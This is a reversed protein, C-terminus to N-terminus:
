FQGFTLRNTHAPLAQLLKTTVTRLQFSCLCFKPCLVRAHSRPKCCRTLLRCAPLICALRLPRNPLRHAPNSPLGVPTSCATASEHNCTGVSIQMASCPCPTRPHCLSNPSAAYSILDCSPLFFPLTPGFLSRM